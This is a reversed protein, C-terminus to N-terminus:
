LKNATYFCEHKFLKLNNIVINCKKCYRIFEYKKDEQKKPLLNNNHRKTKYHNNLQQNFCFDLNCIDCHPM